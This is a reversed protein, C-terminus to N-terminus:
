NSTETILDTDTSNITYKGLLNNDILLKIKEQRHTQQPMAKYFDLFIDLLL